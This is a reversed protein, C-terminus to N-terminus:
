RREAGVHDLVGPEAELYDALSVPERGTLRSVHPSVAELLGDRIAWYSSVWGEVEWDPAQGARSAFAEEDSEDHFSVATGTLRGMLEAAEALSFAEPGTLDYIQGEHGESTLVAAIAAAVDSRMVAAVRGDRAPGRIVGDPAVMFPIFDMYLNFRPFTWALGSARIHEETQWHQRVLTWISDPAAGIASLYVVHRVGAAAAADVATKHQEVRDEAERGPVLLLTDAGELAARMAEGDGYGSAQRVEAGAPQPARSPDRVVLRTRAGAEALLAAVARGVVGTAGTVAILNEDPM